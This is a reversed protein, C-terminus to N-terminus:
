ELVTLNTYTPNQLPYFIRTLTSIHAIALKKLLQQPPISSLFSPHICKVPSLLIAMHTQKGIDEVRTIVYMCLAMCYLM